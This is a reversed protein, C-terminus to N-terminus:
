AAVEKFQSLIEGTFKEWLEDRDDDQHLSGHDDRLWEEWAKIVATPANREETWELLNEVAQYETLGSAIPDDLDYEGFHATWCEPIPRSEWYTTVLSKLSQM